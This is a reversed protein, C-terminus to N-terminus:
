YWICQRHFLYGLCKTFLQWDSFEPSTHSSVYLYWGLAEYVTVTENPLTGLQPGLYEM